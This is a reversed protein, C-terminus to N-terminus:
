NSLSSPSPSPATSPQPCKPRYSAKTEEIFRLIDEHPRFWERNERHEAFREHLQIELDRGGPLTVLIKLQLANGTRLNELRKLVDYAYGIKIFGGDGGAQIFYVSYSKVDEAKREARLKRKFEVQALRLDEREQRLYADREELALLAKDSLRRAM